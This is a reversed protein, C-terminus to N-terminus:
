IQLRRIALILVGALGALGLTAPEPIVITNTGDFVVSLTGAGGNVVVTGDSLLPNAREDGRLILTGYVGDGDSDIDILATGLTSATNKILTDATITGGDLWIYGSGYNRSLELEDTIDIAGGTMWIKGDGSEGLSFQAGVSITGDSLYLFGAEGSTISTKFYDAVTLTGGSMDIRGHGNQGLHVNYADASIGTQIIAADAAGLGGTTFQATDLSTPVGSDWNTATSWLQDAGGNNWSVSAANCMGAFALVSLGMMIKRSM